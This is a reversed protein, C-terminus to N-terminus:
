CVAFISKLEVPLMVEWELLARPLANQYPAFTGEWNNIISGGGCDACYLNATQWRYKESYYLRAWENGCSGCFVVYNRPNIIFPDYPQPMPIRGKGMVKGNVIFTLEYKV